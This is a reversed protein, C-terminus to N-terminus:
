PSTGWTVNISPLSPHTCDYATIDVPGNFIQVFSTGTAEQICIKKDTETPVDFGDYFISPGTTLGLGVFLPAPATGNNTYTNAHIFTGEPNGEFGADSCDGVDIGAGSAALCSVLLAGVSDNGSFTNGTVETNDAGLILLGTGVPVGAVTGGSAFNTGNNNMITNGHVKTRAGTKIPLGPLNFVLIGATNNMTTNGTVEADTSNEIEIGAV